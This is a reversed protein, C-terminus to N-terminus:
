QDEYDEYRRPVIKLEWRANDHGRKDYNRKKAEIIKDIEAYLEEPSHFRKTMIIKENQTRSHFRRPPLPSSPLHMNRIETMRFDKEDILPDHNHNRYSYENFKSRKPKHKRAPAKPPPLVVTETDYDADYPDIYVHEMINKENKDDYYDSDDDYDVNKFDESFEKGNNFRNRAGRNQYYVVEKDVEQQKPLITEEEDSEESSTQKELQEFFFEDNALDAAEGAEMESVSSETTVVPRRYAPRERRRPLGRKPPQNQNANELPSEKLQSNRTRHIVQTMGNLKPKTSKKSEFYEYIRFKSTNRNNRM